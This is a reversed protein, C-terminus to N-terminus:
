GDVGIFPAPTTVPRLIIGKGGFVRAFRLQHQGLYAVFVGYRPGGCEHGAADVFWPRDHPLLFSGGLLVRFWPANQSCLLDGPGVVVAQQVRCLEIERRLKAIWIRFEKGFPPNLFVNGWWRQRLGNIDKTFFTVARVTKNAVICSAPDVDIGGMVARAAEVLWVPSYRETKDM